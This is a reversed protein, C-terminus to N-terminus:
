ILWGCAGRVDSSPRRHDKLLGCEKRPQVDAVVDLKTPLQATDGDALPTFLRIRQEFHHMQPAKRIRKWM